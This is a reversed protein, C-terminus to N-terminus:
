NYTFFVLDYVIARLADTQDNVSPFVHLSSNHRSSILIIEQEIQIHM